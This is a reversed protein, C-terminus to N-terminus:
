IGMLGIQEGYIPHNEIEQSAKKVKAIFRYYATALPAAGRNRYKKPGHRSLYQCAAKVTGGKKAVHDNVADVLEEGGVTSSGDPRTEKPRVNLQVGPIFDQIMARLLARTMTLEDGTTIGYHEVLSVFRISFQKNAESFAKERLAEITADIEVTGTPPIVWPVEIPELLIGTLPKGLFSHPSKLTASRPKSEKQNEETM